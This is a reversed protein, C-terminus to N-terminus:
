WPLHPSSPMGRTVVPPTTLLAHWTDGRSTPLPPSVQPYTVVDGQLGELFPQPQIRNVDLSFERWQVQTFYRPDRADREGAAYCM